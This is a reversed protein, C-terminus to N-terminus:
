QMWNVTTVASKKYELYDNMKFFSIETENEVGSDTLSFGSKLILKDDDEVNIALNGSKTGHAKHSIKMTDYAFKKFPPPIGTRTPIEKKVQEIFDETKLTLKVNQFVIPRVNNYEFSRILRVTVTCMTCRLRYCDDIM